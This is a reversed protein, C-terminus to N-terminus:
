KIFIERKALNSIVEEYPLPKSYYYGQLRECGSKTLFLVHEKTEVGECLTTIGLNKAMNIMHKVIVKSKNDFKRLFEMDIKIENFNFDKLVNLSSYGSGFDDMWVDFGANQYKDVTEKITNRDSMTITETIEIKIYEHDINYKECMEITKNFPAADTFDNRSLNFSIPCVKYGLDMQKRLNKCIEELVYLDLKYILNNEELTNIFDFPSLFGYIPDIWRSLAEFGIIQETKSEIVPQYYVKIYHNEIAKDINEIIYNRKVVNEKIQNSYIVIHNNGKKAEDRAIRANEISTSALSGEELHYVGIRLDLNYEQVKKLRTLVINLRDLIHETKDYVIFRDNVIRAICTDHFIEKLLSSFKLTINQSEDIGKFFQIDKFNKFNFCAVSLNDNKKNIAERLSSEFYPLTYLCTDKDFNLSEINTINKFQILVKKSYNYISRNVSNINTEINYQKGNIHYLCSFSLYGNDNILKYQLTNLDMMTNFYLQNSKDVFTTSIYEILDSYKFDKNFFEELLPTVKYVVTNESKLDVTFEVMSNRSLYDKLREYQVYELTKKDAKLIEIYTLIQEPKDDSVRTPVCTIQFLKDKHNKGKFTVSKTKNIDYSMFEKVLKADKKSVFEETFSETANQYILNTISFKDKTEEPVIILDLKPYFYLLGQNSKNIANTLYTSDKYSINDLIPLLVESIRKIVEKEKDNWIRGDAQFSVFSTVHNQYVNGYVLNGISLARTRLSINEDIVQAVNGIFLDTMNSEAEEPVLLLNFHMTQAYKGKSSVYSYLYVNKDASDSLVYIQPLKLADCIEDLFSVVIKDNVNKIDNYKHKFNEIINFTESM